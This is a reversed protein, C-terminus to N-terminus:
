SFQGPDASNNDTKGPQYLIATPAYFNGHTNYSSPALNLDEHLNCHFNISKHIFPRRTSITTSFAGFHGRTSIAHFNGTVDWRRRCEGCFGMATHLYYYIISKATFSSNSRISDHSIKNSQRFFFPCFPVHYDSARPSDKGRLLAVQHANRSELRKTAAELSRIAIIIELILM